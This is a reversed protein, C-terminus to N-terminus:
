HHLAGALSRNALWANLDDPALPRCLHYGQIDDCGLEALLDWTPQDEVGEAVVSLNLSHALLIVSHVISRTTATSTLPLIFSKDIKVEHVPLKQLYALSSHGTGFDDISLRSGLDALGHLTRLVKAPEAMMTTETVEFTVRAPDVRMAVLSRAVRTPLNADLLNRMSLNISIGMDRGDDSWDRIAALGQRIIHQTFPQILGTREALPVFEDPPVMGYIPHRWRVLAEVSHVVGDRANAKPQFHLTLEGSDIARRLDNALSLRRVTNVDRTPAYVAIRDSSSAKAEYMAVDAQRLLTSPDSGHEPYIAIGVSAGIEIALDDLLFPETFARHIIRGLHAPDITLAPAFVAFEDGGLRALGTEPPLTERLRRAVERILLDGHHHGLTDNVEKFHDLDLLAVLVRGSTHEASSISRLLQEHFDARNALGTLADHRAVYDRQRAHEHLREILRGNELAVSAHKALTEFLRGDDATFTSVDTERDFVAIVGIVVNEEVLPAAVCDKAGIAALLARHHVDKTSRRMVVSHGTKVLLRIEALAARHADTPTPRQWRAIADGPADILLAAGDARLLRRAEHLMSDLVDDPRRSGSVMQVFDYLLRLSAHRQNLSSHSRYAVIVVAAVIGLPILAMPNSVATVVAVIALSTNTVSTVIGTVFMQVLRLPAGHWHMATAVTVFVAVAGAALAAIAALWATPQHVDRSFPLSYFVFIALTSEALFAGVNLVVKRLPQHERLVLVATSGIVHGVVLASPSAFFLGVTLPLETLTFSIAERRIELHFGIFEGLAFGVALAWWAVRFHDIPTFWRLRSWLAALALTSVAAALGVTKTAPGWRQRVQSTAM